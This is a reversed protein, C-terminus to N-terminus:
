VLVQQKFLSGNRPEVRNKVLTAPGWANIGTVGVTNEINIAANLDRDAAFGCELCVFTRENLGLKEKISGCKSCTKSSPYFRDVFKVERGYLVAKYELQRRIESWSVDSIAKASKHNAMMGQVNLNELGIVQNEDILKLTVKHTWDKRINAIRAHLKALKAQSKKRNNSGKVKRSHQRSRRKLLKTYKKLPRPAQYEQGDSGVITTKLGLDLGITKTSPNVQKPPAELEVSISIFWRNATRSVVGSMIKGKFRLEEFMKVLGILPLKLTKNKIWFQDNAVYFSDKHGKKKFRPYQGKKKFFRNFAAQLNLFPRQNADKPSEYIWPFQEKKIANFQKNLKNGSPKLGAEYQKNWEGLAWNYAFRAVGCAKVFAQEQVKTPNLAIKHSLIPM